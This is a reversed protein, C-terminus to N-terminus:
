VVLFAILVLLLAFLFRAFCDVYGVEFYLVFMFGWGFLTFFYFVVFDLWCLLWVWVGM